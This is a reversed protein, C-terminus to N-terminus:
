KMERIAELTVEYAELFKYAERDPVGYTQHSKVKESAAVVEQVTWGGRGYTADLKASEKIANQIGAKLIERNTM